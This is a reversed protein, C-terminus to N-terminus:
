SIYSLEKPTENCRWVGECQTSLLIWKTLSLSPLTCLKLPAQSLGTPNVLHSALPQLFRTAWDSSPQSSNSPNPVLHKHVHLSYPLLQDQLMSCFTSFSLVTLVVKERASCARTCGRRWDWVQKEGICVCKNRMIDYTYSNWKNNREGM